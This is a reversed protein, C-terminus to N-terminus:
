IDSDETGVVPNKNLCDGNCECAGSCDLGIKKCSCNGKGCPSESKCGCGIQTLIKEPAILADTMLPCYSADILKWGWDTAHLTNGLWEQVQHYVRLSHYSVASTTPPLSKPHIFAGKQNLRHLFKRLRIEELSKENKKSGVILMMIKEGANIINDRTQDITMFVTSNPLFVDNKILKLLTGKGVGQIRSTTDCGCFAHILPIHCCIEKGLSERVNRITWVRPAKKTLKQTLPQYYLNCRENAHYISLVLLDTDSGILIVPKTLSLNVATKVILLDADAHAYHVRCGASNLRVGLLKILQQKNSPNSLFNERKYNNELNVRVQIDASRPASSRRLHTSDKTTPTDPYGDFVVVAKGFNKIVYGVYRSLIQEYKERKNWEVRHMLWGGDVVYVAGEPTPDLSQLQQEPPLMNWISDALLPKDAERMVYKQEFLTAPYACLEFTFLEPLNDEKMGLAVFRQFLIEPDVSVESGSPTKVVNTNMTIIQEKKRFTYEVVSKDLMSEMIANGVELTRDATSANFVLGTAINKLNPDPDFPNRERIFEVMAAVEREDRAISAKSAEKHQLSTSFHVGTLKQIQLNIDICVPRSMVWVLRVSDTWGRGRSVGGTSKLARMLQCEIIQDTPVGCWYADSQRVVHHGKIFLNHVEPHDVKLTAMKQLYIWATQTYLRHGNAALTPISERIAELHLKWNGTREAKRLKRLTDCQKLHQLYLKSVRSRDSLMKSTEEMCDDYKKLTYIVDDDDINVNRHLIGKAIGRASTLLAADLKGEEVAKEELAIHLCTTTLQHSRRARDLSKGNMIHPLSNDAYPIELLNKLGSGSMNHGISGAYSMELHMPALKLVIRRLDSTTSEDQIITFAKWWLPQDFTLVPTVGHRKAHESVFCLTTYICNINSAELDVMPLYLFSSKGPYQGKCIMQMTGSWGARRNLRWVTELHSEGDCSLSPAPDLLLYKVKRLGDKLKPCILIDIQGMRRIQELDVNDRPVILKKRVGPTVSAMMGMGHYQFRGSQTISESDANDASYNISHSASLQSKEIETGCVLAANREFHQVETYSLCFGMHYLTEVLERSGFKDHMQLALGLQLPAIVSRPRSMQIIGHGYSAVKIPTPKTSSVENLFLRLSKPIYDLIEEIEVDNMDPYFKRSQQLVKIDNKILRSATKIIERKATETDSNQKSERYHDLLIKSATECLTVTNTQGDVEGIICRDGLYTQVMKKMHTFGYAQTGTDALYREMDILLQKITTQGENEEEGEVFEELVKIFAEYQMPNKLRGRQKEQRVPQFCLPKEKGTRFNSACIVHYVADAAPLDYVTAVRTKVQHAWEDDRANCRNMLREIGLERCPVLKHGSQKKSDFTDQFACYFCSGSLNVKPECSRLMRKSNSAADDHDSSQRKKTISIRKTDTFDRRCSIHVKQGAVVKIDKGRKIKINSEAISKCGKETLTVTDNEGFPGNCFVCVDM